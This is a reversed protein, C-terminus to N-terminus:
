SSVGAPPWTMSRWKRPESPAPGVLSMDGKLVNILQPLEDISYKRIFTGVPTIRPDDTVKFLPKGDTGQEQLLGALEADAGVRMSRFKLIEFVRGNLGIRQQRFLVPGKSTLKIALATVIMIPSAILVLILATVFDFLGKVVKAGAEYSPSEVYILPLGGVPRAHIRPGAVDTIAPAVMLDVGTSELEWALKRVAPAPLGESGALAVAHLGSEAAIVPVEDLGGLAPVEAARGRIPPKGAYCAGVIEFGLYPRRDVERILHEVSRASGVLLVRIRYHGKRRERRLWQRWLWRSAIVLIVGAPFATIIYGRAIDANILLAVIAVLGFLRFSADGVRAYEDLGAGFLRQDRSGYLQLAGLWGVLLVVSAFTYRLEPAWRGAEVVLRPNELGFWLLQSGFVALGILLTDTVILGRNYAAVWSPKSRRVGAPGIALAQKRRSPEAELDDALTWLQEGDSRGTM